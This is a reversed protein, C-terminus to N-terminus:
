NIIGIRTDNAGKTNIINARLKFQQQKLTAM